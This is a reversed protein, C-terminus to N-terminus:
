RQRTRGPLLCPTGCEQFNQSSAVECECVVRLTRLATAVAGKNFKGFLVLATPFEPDLLVLVELRKVLFGVDQLPWGDDKRKLIAVRDQRTKM